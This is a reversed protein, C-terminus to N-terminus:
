KGGLYKYVNISGEQVVEDQPWVGLKSMRGEYTLHKLAKIMWINLEM